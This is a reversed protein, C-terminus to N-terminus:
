AEKPNPHEIAYRLRALQDGVCADMFDAIEIAYRVSESMSGSVRRRSLTEALALVQADTLYVAKKITGNM